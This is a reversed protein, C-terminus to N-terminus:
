ENATVELRVPNESDIFIEGLGTVTYDSEQFRIVDDVKIYFDQGYYLVHGKEDYATYDGLEIYVIIKYDTSIGLKSQQMGYNSDVKVHRITIKMQNAIGNDDEGLQRILQITHPRFRRPLVRM